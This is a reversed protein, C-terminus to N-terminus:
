RLLLVHGHRGELVPTATAVAVQITGNSPPRTPRNVEEAEPLTLRSRFLGLRVSCGLSTRPRTLTPVVGTVPVTSSTVEPGSKSAIVDLTFALYPRITGIM